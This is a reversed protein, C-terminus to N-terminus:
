KEFAKITLQIGAKRKLINEHHQLEIQEINIEELDYGNSKLLSIIEDEM